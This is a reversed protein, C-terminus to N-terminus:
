VHTGHDDIPWSTYLLFQGIVLNNEIWYLYFAILFFVEIIISVGQHSCSVRHVAIIDTGYIFYPISYHDTLIVTKSFFIM